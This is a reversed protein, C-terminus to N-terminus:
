GLGSEERIVPVTGSGFCFAERSSVAPFSKIDRVIASVYRSSRSYGSKSKRICQGSCGQCGTFRKYIRGIKGIGITYYTTQKQGIRPIIESIVRELADYNYIITQDTFNNESILLGNIYIKQVPTILSSNIINETRKKTTRDIMKTQVTHNGYADIHQIESFVDTTYVSLKKKNTAIVTACDSNIAGHILQNYVIYWDDNEKIFFIDNRKVRDISNTTLLNNNDRDIGLMTLNGFIDYTYLVPFQGTKGIKILQNHANYIYDETIIIGGFSPYEVKAIRKNLDYYEKKWRLSDAAGFSVKTWILGNDTVGYDYYETRQASGTISSISGDCLAEVISTRNEPYTVALTTGRLNSGINNGNLSLYTATLGSSDTKSMIRGAYNYTSSESLSLNGGSVTTNLIRGKADYTYSTVLDPQNGVGVKTKSILRKLADYAYTYQTGDPLTESTKMCCNWTYETLENNSTKIALPRMWADYSAATWGFREYGSGTYVYKEKMVINGIGDFITVQQGTKNAVGNPSATTGYTVTMKVATGTGATFTGAGLSSGANWNGYAYTYTETTDNPYTIRYLRGASPSSSDGKAYYRKETKLNAADNWAADQTTGQQNIEYYQNSAFYYANFEKRVTIGLIKEEITRPRADNPQVTDRSDLPAYSYTISRAQSAPSKLASNKWPKIEEIM